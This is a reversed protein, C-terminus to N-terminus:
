CNETYVEYNLGEKKLYEIIVKSKDTAIKFINPAFKEGQNQKLLQNIKVYDKSDMATKVIILTSTTKKNM